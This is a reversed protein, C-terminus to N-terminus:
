DVCQLLCLLPFLFAIMDMTTTMITTMTTTFKTIPTTPITEKQFIMTLQYITNRRIRTCTRCNDKTIPNDM